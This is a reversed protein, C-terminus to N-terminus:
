HTHNPQPQLSALANRADQSETSNMEAATRLYNEAQANDGLRSEIEGAHYFIPAERVGVKLLIDMQKKAEAYRGNKYLAWAYADLTHVDRRRAVELEGIQLAKPLNNAYDAYYFVLERNANDSRSSESLAQSEFDAFTNKADREMGAAQMAEALRYLTETRPYSKYSQHLLQVSDSPRGQLLRLQAMVLLARSYDPQLSLAQKALSEAPTLNGMEVNVHAM